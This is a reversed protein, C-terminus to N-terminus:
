TLKSRPVSDHAIDVVDIRLLLLTNRTQLGVTIVRAVHFTGHFTHFTVKSSQALRGLGCTGEGLVLVAPHWLRQDRSGASAVDVVDNLIFHDVDVAESVLVLQRVDDIRSAWNDRLIVCCKALRDVSLLDRRLELLGLVRVRLLAESHVHLSSDIPDPKILFTVAEDDRIVVVEVQHVVAGECVHAGELLFDELHDREENIPDLWHLVAVHPINHGTHVAESNNPLSEM